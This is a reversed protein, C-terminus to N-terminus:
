SIGRTAPLGYCEQTTFLEVWLFNHSLQTICRFHITETCHQQTVAQHLGVLLGLLYWSVMSPDQNGFGPVWQVLLLLTNYPGLVLALNTLNIGFLHNFPHYGPDIFVEGLGGINLDVRELISFLIILLQM